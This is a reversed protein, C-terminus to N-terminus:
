SSTSSSKKGNEPAEDTVYEYVLEGEVEYVLPTGTAQAIARAREAARKLARLAAETNSGQVAGNNDQEINM